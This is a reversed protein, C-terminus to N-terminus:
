TEQLKEDQAEDQAEDQVEGQVYASQYHLPSLLVQLWHTSCDQNFQGIAEESDGDYCSLL